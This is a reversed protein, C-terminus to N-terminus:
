SPLVSKWPNRACLGAFSTSFFMDKGTPGILQKAAFAAYQVFGFSEFSLILIMHSIQLSFVCANRLLTRHFPREWRRPVMSPMWSLCSSWSVLRSTLSIVGDSVVGSSPGMAKSACLSLSVTPFVHLIWPRLAQLSESKQSSWVNRSTSLAELHLCSKVVNRCTLPILM